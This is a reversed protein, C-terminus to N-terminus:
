GHKVNPNEMDQFNIAQTAMALDYADAGFQGNAATGALIATMAPGIAANMTEVYTKLEDLNHEVEALKVLGGFADGRLWVEDVETYACVRTIAPNDELMEVLVESNVKPKLAFADPSNGETALLRVDLRDYGEEVEVVCTKANWDVSKVKGVVVQPPLMPDAALKRIAEKLTSM